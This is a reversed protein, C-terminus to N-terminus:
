PLFDKLKVRLEKYVGEIPQEGNIDCLVGKNKYYDIVPQVESEFWDLRSEIKEAKDDERMRLLLRQKAVERSVNLYCVRFFDQWEFMALVEELMQAEYLKRPNGDFIIGLVGPNNYAHELIPMWLSFVIPTPVLLGNDLVYRLRDGVVDNKRARERLMDGTQVVSFGTDKMLLEIQSRKGAGSRGLISIISIQKSM